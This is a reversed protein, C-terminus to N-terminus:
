GTAAGAPNVIPPAAGSVDRWEISYDNALAFKAIEAESQPIAVNTTERYSGSGSKKYAVEEGHFGRGTRHVILCKM